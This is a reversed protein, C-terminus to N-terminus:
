GGPGQLGPDQFYVFINRKSTNKRMFGKMKLPQQEFASNKSCSQKRFAAPSFFKSTPPTARRREADQRAGGPRPEARGRADM